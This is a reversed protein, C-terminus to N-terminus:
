LLTSNFDTQQHSYLLFDGNDGGFRAGLLLFCCDVAPPLDACGRAVSELFFYLAVPFLYSCFGHPLLQFGIQALSGANICLLNWNWLSPAPLKGEFVQSFPLIGM